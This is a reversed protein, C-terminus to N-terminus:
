VERQVVRWRQAVAERAEKTTRSCIIWEEEGSGKRKSNEKRPINKKGYKIRISRTM